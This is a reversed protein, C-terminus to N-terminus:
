ILKNSVTVHQLISLKILKYDHLKSSKSYMTLQIKSSLSIDSKNLKGVKFNFIFFQKLCKIRFFSEHFHM